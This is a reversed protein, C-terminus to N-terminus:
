TPMKELEIVKLDSVNKLDLTEKMPKVGLGMKEERGNTPVIKYDNSNGNTLAETMSVVAAKLWRCRLIYFARSKQPVSAKSRLVSSGGGGSVSSGRSRMIM